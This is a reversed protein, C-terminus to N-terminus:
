PTPRLNSDQEPRKSNGPIQGPDAGLERRPQNTRARPLLAQKAAWAIVRPAATPRVAERRFRYRAAEM